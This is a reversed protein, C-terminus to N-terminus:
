KGKATAISWLAAVAGVGLLTGGAIVGAKQNDSLSDWWGPAVTQAAIGATVTGDPGIVPVATIAVDKGTGASTEVNAATDAKNSLDNVFAQVQAAPMTKLQEVTAAPMMTSVKEPVVVTGTPTAVPTWPAALAVPTRPAAM